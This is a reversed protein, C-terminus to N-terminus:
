PRPFTRGGGPQCSSRSRGPHRPVFGGNWVGVKTSVWWRRDDTWTSPPVVKWKRSAAGAWASSVARAAAPPCCTRM